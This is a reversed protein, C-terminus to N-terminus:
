KTPRQQLSTQWTGTSNTPAYEPPLEGYGLGVLQFSQRSRPPEEKAFYWVGESNRFQWMAWSPVSGNDWNDYPAPTDTWPILGQVDFQNYRSIQGHQNIFIFPSLGPADTCLCKLRCNSGNVRRYEKGPEIALEAPTSSIGFVRKYPDPEDPKPDPKPDLVRFEYHNPRMSAVEKFFPHWDPSCCCRMEVREGRESAAHAEDCSIIRYTSTLNSDM